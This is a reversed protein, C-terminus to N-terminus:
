EGSWSGASISTGSSLSSGGGSEPTSSCDGFTNVFVYLRRAVETTGAVKIKMPISQTLKGSIEIAASAAPMVATFSSTATVDPSAFENEDLYACLTYSQVSTPTYNYTKEFSGANISTGSSLSSGGGSEPTFSCGGFANVFVYLKHNGDAVGSVKISLPVDQTPETGLSFELSEARALAPAVLGLLILTLMAALCAAYRKRAMAVSGRYAHHNV